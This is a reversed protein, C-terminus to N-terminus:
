NPKRLLLWYNTALGSRGLKFAPKVIKKFEILKFNRYFTKVELEDYDKQFKGNEPWITSNPELGPSHTIFEKEWEDEISCVTVLAYGGPKLTRFMEERCLERGVKTEIDISAFSDIAVDFFNEAFPWPKDIEGWQFYVPQLGTNQEALKNSFDIAEQIYEIGYVEFSHKALYFSNRGKGSGIDIATGTLRQQQTLFEVFFVVGSAPELSALSPLAAQIAHEKLWVQQQKRM